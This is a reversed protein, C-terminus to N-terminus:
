RLTEEVYNDGIMRVSVVAGDPVALTIPELLKTDMETVEPGDDSVGLHDKVRFRM